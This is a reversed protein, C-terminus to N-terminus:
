ASLRGLYRIGRGTPAYNTVLLVRCGALETWCTFGQRRLFLCFADAQLETASIFEYVNM